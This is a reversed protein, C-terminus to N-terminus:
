GTNSKGLILFLFKYINAKIRVQDEPLAGGSVTGPRHIRKRTQHRKKVATMLLPHVDFLAALRMAARLSGFIGNSYAERVSLERQSRDIIVGKKADM